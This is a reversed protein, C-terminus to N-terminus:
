SWEAFGRPMCLCDLSTSCNPTFVSQRSLELMFGPPSGPWCSHSIFTTIIRFLSRTWRFFPQASPSACPLFLLISDQGLIMRPCGPPLDLKSRRGLGQFRM